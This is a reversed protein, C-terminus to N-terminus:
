REAFWDLFERAVEPTLEYAAEAVDVTGKAVAIAGLVCQVMAEDWQRAAAAAALAPLQALADFFPDRLDDPIPEGTRQRCIEVWAPFGFYEYGAREPAAALVHVVHPVAAFSASYVDGQHALSSWISSWPEDRYGKSNPVFELDRLMGPVDVAAGYATHLEAWRPSDLGLM